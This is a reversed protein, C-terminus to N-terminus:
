KKFIFNIIQDIAKYAEPIPTAMWVHYLNPYENFEIDINNLKALNYLKRADANLIDATGTFISIPPLNILSGYLPSVKPDTKENPGAWKDGAWKLGDIGLMNDKKSLKILDPNTMSIDLWPSLLIVKNPLKNKKDRLMMCLSLALGAGASDGIFIIKKESFHNIYSNILPTTKLISEDCNSHPALPYLPVIIEFQSKEAIKEILFWHAKVINNVYAGGHFYIITGKPPLGRPLIKYYALDANFILKEVEFKKELKKPPPCPKQEYNFSNSIKKINSMKRKTGRLPLVIYNIIKSSFSAM